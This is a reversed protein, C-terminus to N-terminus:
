EMMRGTLFGDVADRFNAFGMEAADGNSLDVFNFDNLGGFFRVGTGDPTTVFHSASLVASM